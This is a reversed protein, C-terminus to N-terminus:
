VALLRRTAAEIDEARMLAEGILVADVGAAELERLEAPERFGSEAVSLVGDPLEPVLEFTRGTDVQLTTLDRNNVGVIRAGAGVARALESRDHVEVLVSLGLESAQAHLRRLEADELAAVILLIADAGGVFSELVQYPDVIFDKRLIPLGAAARAAQLDRLSGRFNAEETLVSLASAGAREYCGVVEELSTGERITGASPSARKHEAILSLGPGALAREFPRLDALALRAQAAQALEAAPFAAARRAVAERTSAVIRELHNV